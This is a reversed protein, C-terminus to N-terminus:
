DRLTTRAVNMIMALTAYYGCLGVLDILAEEGLASRVRDYLDDPVDQERHLTRCFEVVAQATDGVATVPQGQAIQELAEEHVGAAVTIPAHIFWEVPQSWHVATVLIAIERLDDPLVSEYRIFEGVKQARRMFGPSRMMPFFPGQLKGRPGGVLEEVVARQEATMESSELPPMREPSPRPPLQIM